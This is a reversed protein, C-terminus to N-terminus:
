AGVEGDAAVYRVQGRKEIANAVEVGAGDYGNVELMMGLPGKEANNAEHLETGGVAIVNDVRQHTSTSLQTRNWTLRCKM